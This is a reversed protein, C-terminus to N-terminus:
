NRGNNSEMSPCKNLPRAAHGCVPCHLYIRLDVPLNLSLKLNEEEVTWWKHCKGCNFHYLVEKSYCHHLAM